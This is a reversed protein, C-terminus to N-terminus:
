LNSGAAPGCAGPFSIQARRHAPTVRLRTVTGGVCEAEILTNQPAHLQFHVAWQRPWAPFLFISDGDFQLVMAELATKAVAGTCVEPTYDFHSGSM